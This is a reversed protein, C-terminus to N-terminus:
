TKPKPPPAAPPPPPPPKVFPTYADQDCADIRVAIRASVFDNAKFFMAYRLTGPASSKLCVIWDGPSIPPVARPSSIELPEPLKADGAMAVVRTAIAAADPPNSPAAPPGSEFISCAGLAFCLLATQVRM